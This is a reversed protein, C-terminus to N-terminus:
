VLRHGKPRQMFTMVSAKGIIMLLVKSMFRIHHQSYTQPDEATHTGYKKQTSGPLFRLEGARQTWLGSARAGSGPRHGPWGLRGHGGM